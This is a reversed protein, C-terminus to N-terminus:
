FVCNGVYTVIYKKRLAQCNYFHHYTGESEEAKTHNNTEYMIPQQPTCHKSELQEAVNMESVAPSRLATVVAEWTPCPKVATQLWHKLM